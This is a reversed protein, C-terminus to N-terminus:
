PQSSLPAFSSQPPPPGGARGSCWTRAAAAPCQRRRAAAGPRCCTHGKWTPLWVHICPVSVPGDDSAWSAWGAWRSLLLLRWWPPPWPSWSVMVAHAAAGPFQQAPLQQPGTCVYGARDEGSDTSCGHWVVERIHKRAHMCPLVWEGWLVLAGTCQCGTKSDQTCSVARGKIRGVQHHHRAARNAERQLRCSRHWRASSDRLPM